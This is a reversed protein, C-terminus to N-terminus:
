APPNLVRLPQGDLHARIDEVAQGYFVKYTERTVYGLHPTLLLNPVETLPHHLPLPEEEFVDLAAGAIEGKELSDALADTDILPGRSTNVLYATNKMLKLDPAGIIGRTRESLVLHLSVFDSRRLLDQKSVLTAGAEEAREATLNQSWALVEMEFAKGFRAIRSGLTGLGIVGLTKGNLGIGLTTQWEGARLAADEMPIRRALSLILGWALEATPYQLGQTGSVTIGHEAAARVDISANRM